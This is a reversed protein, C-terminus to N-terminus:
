IIVMSYRQTAPPFKKRDEKYFVACHDIAYFRLHAQEDNIVTAIWKEANEQNIYAPSNEIDDCIGFRSCSTETLCEDRLLAM